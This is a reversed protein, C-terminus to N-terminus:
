KKRVLKEPKSQKKDKGTDEKANKDNKSQDNKKDDKM